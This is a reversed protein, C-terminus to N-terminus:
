YSPKVLLQYPDILAIASSLLFLIQSIEQTFLQSTFNRWWKAYTPCVYCSFCYCQIRNRIYWFTLSLFPLIQPYLKLSFSFIIYCFKNLFFLSFLKIFFNLPEGLCKLVSMNLSTSFTNLLIFYFRTVNLPYSFHKM